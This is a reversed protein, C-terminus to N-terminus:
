ASVAQLAQVEYSRLTPRVCDSTCAILEPFVAELEAMVGDDMVEAGASLHYSETPVGAAYIM